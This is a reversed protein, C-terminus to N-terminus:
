QDIIRVNIGKRVEKVYDLMYKFKDLLRPDMIAVTGKDGKRRWLRGLTQTIDNKVLPITFKTWANMNAIEELYKAQARFKDNYTPFPIRNLCVFELDPIDIGQFFVRSGILIAKGKYKQFEEADKFTKFGEVVGLGDMYKIDVLTTSLVLGKNKGEANMIKLFKSIGDQFREEPIVLFDSKTYDIASYGREKYLRSRPVGFMELTFDDQTASFLAYKISGQSVEYSSWFKTIEIGNPSVEIYKDVSPTEESFRELRAILNSNLGDKDPLRQIRKKVQAFLQPSMKLGREICRKFLFFTPDKSDLISNIYEIESKTIEIKLFSEYFQAFTHAEDVFCIDPMLIHNKLGLLYSSHNTIIFKPGIENMQAKAVNYFCQDFHRCKKFCSKDKPWLSRDTQFAPHELSVEPFENLKEKKMLKLGCTVCAKGLWIIPEIGFKTRAEKAFQHVLKNFGTTLVITFDEGKHEEFYEKIFYLITITKGSGTDSEIALPIRGPFKRKLFNLQEEQHKRLKVM